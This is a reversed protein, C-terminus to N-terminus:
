VTLNASRATKPRLAAEAMRVQRKLKTFSRWESQSIQYAGDSSQSKHVKQGM